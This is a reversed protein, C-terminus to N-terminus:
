ESLFRVCIEPPRQGKKYNVNGYASLRVRDPNVGYDLLFTRLVAARKSSLQYCHKDDDGNVQVFLEVMCGKNHILFQALQSLEQESLPSLRSTGPNFVVMRLPVPHEQQTLQALTYGQISVAERSSGNIRVSPAFLSGDVQVSLAYDKGKRLRLPNLQSIEQGVWTHVVAQRSVDVLDIRKVQPLVEKMNVRVTSYCSGTDHQTALSYCAYRSGGKPSNSTVLLQREGQCFALSAENFSGNAAKGMNVPASWHQWDDIDTRTVRYVDGYGFGGHGDTIFYLTRMNRSLLPSRESYPTNVQCGLNVAEGWGTATLPVFYLDTALATDGHYYSGSRQYNHGEPRDSAFLIGSGDELMYADTEIYETNVPAHLRELIKWLSDSQVEAVWIDGDIGLLVKRGDDFFNYAMPTKPCKEVRIEGGYQWGGGKRLSPRAYNLTRRGSVERTFCLRNGAPTAIVHSLGEDAALEITRLGEPTDLLQLLENYETRGEGEFCLAFNQMRAKAKDWERRSIQQQLLRQLAVFAVRKGTLKYVYTSMTAYNSEDFPRTLDFTDIATARELDAELSVKFPYEPNAAAFAEIPQRNGEASHWYYYQKYIRSYEVDLPFRELYVKAAHTNHEELVMTRLRALASEALPLDSHQEAFDAFEEPTTLTSYEWNSLEDLHMVAALYDDGRPYRELYSAYADITNARCANAYAIRSKQRMAAHQMAPSEAYPEAARDVSGEDTYGSYYRRALRALAAEASDAEATGKHATAFAYYGDITNERCVRIYAVELLRDRVLAQIEPVDKYVDAYAILEAEELTSAHARLYDLSRTELEKRQHRITILTIKKRVLKLVADYQSNDDLMETYLEEARAIYAAAQPLSYQPNAEEAFFNSMDILNAVNRPHKVYEKYMAAYRTKYDDQQGCVAGAILLAFIIPIIRKM